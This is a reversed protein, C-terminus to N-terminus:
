VAVLTPPVFLKVSYGAYQLLIPIHPYRLNRNVMALALLIVEVELTVMPIVFKAMHAHDFVRSGNKKIKLDRWLGQQSLGSRAPGATNM